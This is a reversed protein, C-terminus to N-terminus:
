RYIGVGNSQFTKKTQGVAITEYAVVGQGKNVFYKTSSNEATTWAKANYWRKVM